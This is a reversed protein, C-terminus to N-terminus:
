AALKEDLIPLIRSAVERQYDRTQKEPKHIWKRSDKPVVISFFAWGNIMEAALVSGWLKRALVESGFLGLGSSGHQSFRALKIFESMHASVIGSMHPNTQWAKLGHRLEEPLIPDLCLELFDAYKSEVMEKIWRKIGNLDFGTANDWIHVVFADGADVVEASIKLKWGRRDIEERFLRNEHNKKELEAIKSKLYEKSSDSIWEQKSDRYLAEITMSYDPFKEIMKYGNKIINYVILFVIGRNGQEVLMPSLSEHFDFEVCDHISEDTWKKYGWEKSYVDSERMDQIGEQLLKRRKWKSKKEMEQDQEFTAWSTPDFKYNKNRLDIKRFNRALLEQLDFANMPVEDPSLFAGVGETCDAYNDLADTIRPFHLDPDELFLQGNGIWQYPLIHAIDHGSFGSVSYLISKTKKDEDKSPMTNPLLGPLKSYYRVFQDFIREDWAFKGPFMKRLKKFMKSVKYHWEAMVRLQPNLREPLRFNWESPHQLLEM